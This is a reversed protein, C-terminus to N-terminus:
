QSKAPESTNSCSAARGLAVSAAGRTIAPPLWRHSARPDDAPHGAGRGVIGVVVAGLGADGLGRSAGLEGVVFRQSHADETGAQAGDLVALAAGRAEVAVPDQDLPGAGAGGAAPVRQDVEQAGDGLPESLGVEADP